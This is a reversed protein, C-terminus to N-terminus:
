LASLWAFNQEFEEIREELTDVQPTSEYNFPGAYNIERLASVVSSWDIVGKGPMWQKEDM